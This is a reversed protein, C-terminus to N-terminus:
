YGRANSQAREYKLAHRHELSACVCKMKYELKSDVIM